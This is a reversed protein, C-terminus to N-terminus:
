RFLGNDATEQNSHWSAQMEQARRIVREVIESKAAAKAEVLELEPPINLEALRAFM